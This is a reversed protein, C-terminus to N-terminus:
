ALYHAFMDVAFHFFIGKDNRVNENHSNLVLFSVQTDNQQVFGCANHAAGCFAQCLYQFDFKGGEVDM